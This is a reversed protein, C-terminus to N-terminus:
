GFLPSFRENDWWAPMSNACTVLQNTFARARMHFGMTWCDPCRSKVVPLFLRPRLRALGRVPRPARLAPPEGATLRRRLVARPPDRELAALKSLPVPHPLLLWSPVFSVERLHTSPLRLAPAPSPRVHKADCPPLPQRLARGFPTM